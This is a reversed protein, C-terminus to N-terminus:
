IQGAKILRYIAAKWRPDRMRVKLVDTPIAFYEAASLQIEGEVSADVTQIRGPVRFMHERVARDYRVRFTNMGDHEWYRRALEERGLSSFEQIEAATLPPADTQAVVQNFRAEAAVVAEARDDAESKGDTRPLSGNAVGRDFALRAAVVTPLSQQMAAVLTKLLTPSFYKAVLQPNSKLFSQAVNEFQLNTNSMNM